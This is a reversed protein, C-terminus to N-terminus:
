HRNSHISPVPSWQLAALLMRGNFLNCLLLDSLHAAIVASHAPALLPASLPLPDLGNCMSRTSPHVQEGTIMHAHGQCTEKPPLALNDLCWSRTNHLGALSACPEAPLLPMMAHGASPVPATDVACGDSPQPHKWPWQQHCSAHQGTPTVAPM